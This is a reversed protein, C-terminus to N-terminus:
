GKVPVQINLKWPRPHHEEVPIPMGKEALVEVFGEIAEKAMRVVEDLTEGQTFCGPLAPVYAWFGGEECPEINVTYTRKEMTHM